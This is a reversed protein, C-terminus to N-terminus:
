NVTFGSLSKQGIKISGTLRGFELNIGLLVVAARLLGLCARADKGSIENDRFMKLTIFIDRFLASSNPWVKVEHGQADCLLLKRNKGVSLTSGTPPITVVDQKTTAM